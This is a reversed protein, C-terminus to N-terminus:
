FKNAYLTELFEPSYDRSEFNSSKKYKKSNNNKSKLVNVNELIGQQVKQNYKDQVKECYTDDNKRIPRIKRYLIEKHNNKYFYDNFTYRKKNLSNVIRSIQNKTVRFIKHLNENNLTCQKHVNSYYLAISYIFKEKDNLNNDALVSIPIFLGKFLVKKNIDKIDVLPYLKREVKNNRPIIHIYKKDQLTNIISSIRKISRNLMDALYKNRISCYGKNNSFFLILSYIIKEKDRLNKDTLIQYPIWLGDIKFKNKMILKEKTEFKFYTKHM